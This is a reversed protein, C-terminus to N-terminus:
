FIYFRLGVSLGLTNFNDKTNLEEMPRNPDPNPNVSPNNSTETLESVFITHQDIVDIDDISGSQFVNDEPDLFDVDFRNIINEKSNISLAAFNMEAFVSLWNTARYATGLRTQLGYSFKGFTSVEVELKSRVSTGPIGTAQEFVIGERDDIKISSRSNGWVPILVGTKSYISWKKIDFNLVLQPALELRSARVTHEGKFTPTETKALLFRQSQFYNVQVEFGINKHFMYGINLPTRWGSGQTGFVSTSSISSDARMLYNASGIIEQTSGLDDNVFPFSYGGSVEIYFRKVRLSDQATVFNAFSTIIFLVFLIRM